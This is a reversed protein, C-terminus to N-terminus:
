KGRMPIDAVCVIEPGGAAKELRFKMLEDLVVRAQPQRGAYSRLRTLLRKVIIDGGDRALIFQIARKLAVKDLQGLLQQSFLSAFEETNASSALAGFAFAAILQQDINQDRM